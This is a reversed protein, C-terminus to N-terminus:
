SNKLAPAASWNDFNFTLADACIINYEVINRFKEVGCLLRDRCLDVNDFMIDMGYITRLATEFDHGHELKMILVESLFQGNGCAPDFFTREPNIFESKPLKQLIEEVENHTKQRGLIMGLRGSHIFNHCYHCLPEISEIKCIGKKYNISYSEHAELWKFKKAKTKHVGCAICHYDYKAYVEDIDKMDVKDKIMVTSFNVYDTNM